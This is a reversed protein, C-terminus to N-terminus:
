RRTCRSTVISIDHGTLVVEGLRSSRDCQFCFVDSRSCEVAHSLGYLVCQFGVDQLRSDRVKGAMVGAQKRSEEQLFFINTDMYAHLEGFLNEILVSNM